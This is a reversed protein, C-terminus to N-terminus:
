KLLEKRFEHECKVCLLTADGSVWWRRLRVKAMSACCWCIGTIRRAFKSKAM